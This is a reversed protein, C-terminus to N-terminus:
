THPNGNYLYSNHFLRIEGIPTEISTFHHREVSNAGQDDAAM